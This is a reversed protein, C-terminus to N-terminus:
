HLLQKAGDGVSTRMRRVYAALVELVEDLKRIETGFGGMLRELQRLERQMRAWDAVVDARAQHSFRVGALLDEYGNPGTLRLQEVIAEAIRKAEEGLLGIRALDGCVRQRLAEDQLETADSHDSGDDM